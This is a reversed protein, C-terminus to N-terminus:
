LFFVGGRVVEDAEKERGLEKWFGGERVLEIFAGITSNFGRSTYEQDQTISRGSIAVEIQNVNIIINRSIPGSVYKTLQGIGERFNTFNLIIILYSVVTRSGTNKNEFICDRYNASAKNM